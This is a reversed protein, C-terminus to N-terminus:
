TNAKEQILHFGQYGNTAVAEAKDRYAPLGGAYPMFVKPKGPIDAGCYWSPTKTFLTKDAVANVHGVWASQAAATPEIEAIRATRLDIFCRTLWDVHYEISRIVNTLVSPSGPGTVTFLNPFGAIMLGLMNKPGDAWAQQNTLGDKGIVDVSLFAGTMADYGTALIITGLKFEQGSKLRLGQETFSAIPDNSVDVLEVNDRNFIEYYGTDVCTRRTGYLYKPSLLDATKPDKVIDRIRQRLFDAVPANSTEDTQIDTFSSTFKFAGGDQWRDMLIRDREEPTVDQVGCTAVPCVIGGKHAASLADFAPLNNLFELYDQESLSRNRAPLSYAPSRQFIKLQQTRGAIATAVQVGSSGTGILGVTEHEFCPDDKPWDTTHILRGRYNEIGPIDPMRPVSLAGTAFVVHRASLTDDSETRLKWFQGTDQWEARMIRTEFLIDKRLELQDAVWKAYNLIEAQTSFRESWRWERRLEDSWSYQYELSEVDCRLGPYRNHYWTGGVEPAAEVVQVAFGEHRLRHLLYMGSFGAGIILIDIPTDRTDTPM